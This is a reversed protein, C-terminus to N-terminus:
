LLAILPPITVLAVVGTVATGVVVGYKANQWQHFRKLKLTKKKFQKGMESLRSASEEMEELTDGRSLAAEINKAMIEKVGDIDKHVMALRGLYTVEEMRQLLTPAFTAQAALVDGYRWNYDHERPIQTIMVLKQLFSQVQDLDVLEKHYVTAFKWVLISETLPDKELVHLKIGRCRFTRCNYFEYGATDKKAMLGKATQLVQGGLADEGAEVLIVSGRSISAWLICNKERQCKRNNNRPIETSM